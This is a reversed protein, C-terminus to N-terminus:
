QWPLEPAEDDALDIFENEQIAKNAGIVPHKVPIDGFLEGVGEVVDLDIPAVKVARRKKKNELAEALANKERDALNENLHYKTILGNALKVDSNNIAEQVLDAPPLDYGANFAYIAREIGDWLFNLNTKTKMFLSSLSRYEFGYDTLRFCGAKGYLNRRNIDNDILVSPVGLFADFYKIALLSTEVDPNDYGCHVHLGASRLNTKEGEPKPNPEETYANYDVSCGFLKAEESQLQDEPVTYSARCRIDYNPNVKKVFERIQKKMFIISDIFEERTRSPPINFEALINDIELGFGEPWSPDRWPKGKEGPIIGISSVVTKTSTNYIFLEPDAGITVNNLRM